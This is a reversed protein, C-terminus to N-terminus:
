AARRKSARVGEQLLETRGAVRLEERIVQRVASLISQQQIHAVLADNILTQYNGGGAEEVLAQFHEIVQKDLRISIKTKGVTPAVVAGRRAHTFDFDRHPEAIVKRM